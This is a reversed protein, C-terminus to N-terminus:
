VVPEHPAGAGVPQKAAGIVIEKLTALAVRVGGAVHNSVGVGVVRGIDQEAAGAHIGKFRVPGGAPGPFDPFPETLFVISIGQPIPYRPLPDDVPVLSCTGSTISFEDM